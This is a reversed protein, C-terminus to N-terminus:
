RRMIFSRLRDGVKQKLLWRIVRNGLLLVIVFSLMIAAAARFIVGEFLGDHRIWSVWGHDAIWTYLLYFM